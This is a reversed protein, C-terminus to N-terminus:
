PRQFTAADAASRAAPRASGASVSPRARRRGPARTGNGKWWRRWLDFRHPLHEIRGDARAALTLSDRWSPAVLNLVWQLFLVLFHM